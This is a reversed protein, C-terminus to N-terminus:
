RKRLFSVFLLLLGPVGLALWAPVHMIDALIQGFFASQPDGVWSEVSQLSWANLQHWFQRATLSKYYGREVSPVLALVLPLAAGFMLMIGAARLVLM